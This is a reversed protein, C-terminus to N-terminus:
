LKRSLEVVRESRKRWSLDLIQSMERDSRGECLNVTDEAHTRALEQRLASLHRQSFQLSPSGPWPEAAQLLGAEALSELEEPPVNLYTCLTQRTHRAFQNARGEDPAHRAVFQEILKKEM